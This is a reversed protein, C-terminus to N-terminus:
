NNNLNQMKDILLEVTQEVDLGDENVILDAYKEISLLERWIYTM